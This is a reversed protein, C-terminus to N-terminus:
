YTYYSALAMGFPGTGVTCPSSPIQTLGGTSENIRYVSVTNGAGGNYNPVFAFSGSPDIVIPGPGTAAAYPSGPMTSLAGTAANIEFVDITSSTENTVYLFRGNPHLAPRKVEDGSTPYPSGPLPTLIGTAANLSYGAVGRNNNQTLSVYVFRGDPTVVPAPPNPTTAPLGVAQVGATGSDQDVATLGGTTQDISMSVLLAGNVGGATNQMLLVRGSPEIAPLSSTSNYAGTSGATLGGNTQDIKYPYAANTGFYDGVFVFRDFADVIPYSPQTGGSVSQYQTLQGSSGIRHAKVFGGANNESVFLFRTRSDFAPPFPQNFGSFPSGSVATITGAARNLSFGLVTGGSYSAIYVYSGSADVVPLSPFVGAAPGVAFPSGSIQSLAGTRDDVTFASLSAVQNNSVFLFRPRPIQRFLLLSALSCSPDDPRCDQGLKCESLVLGIVMLLM